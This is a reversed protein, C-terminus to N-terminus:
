SDALQHKLEQLTERVEEYDSVFNMYDKSSSFLELVPKIELWAPPLVVGSYYRLSSYMYTRWHRPNLHIYRSIHHLYDDQEIRVAKYCSEFLPGTRKYKRNFYMSYSTMLSRMLKELYPVEQQYVLMHFHNKMLCYANLSLGGSYNPYVFGQKSVKGGKLLYRELLATFYEYDTPELFINQRNIGRAYVHYFSEPSQQKELNRSPM